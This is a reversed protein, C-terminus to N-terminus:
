GTWPKRGGTLDFGKECHGKDPLGCYYLATEDANFIDDESFSELIEPLIDKKQDCAAELDAIRNKERNKKTFLM